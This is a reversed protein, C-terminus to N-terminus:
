LWAAAQLIVAETGSGKLLEKFQEADAKVDNIGYKESNYHLPIAVRPKITRVAEAAETVNMTYKGGIPVLLVDIKEQTLNALEPINDTDGAHYIKTGNINLLFGVGDGSKHYSNDTNYADYAAVYIDDFTYNFFETPTISNIKGSLKSVCETTSIIRTTSNQIEKVKEPDCHDFHAHTILIFDAKKPSTDLVFPDFYITKWADVRFSSHGLWTITINDNVKYSSQPQQQVCGAITITLIVLVPLILKM